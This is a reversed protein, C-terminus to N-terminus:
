LPNEEELDRVLEKWRRASERAGEAYKEPILHYPRRSPGADIYDAAHIRIKDLPITYNSFEASEGARRVADGEPHFPVTSDWIRDTLEKAIEEEGQFFADRLLTVPLPDSSAGTGSWCAVADEPFWRYAKYWEYEIPMLRMRDKVMKYTDYYKVDFSGYKAGVIQPIDALDDWLQYSFEGKFAAINYYLIIGMEPVAQAIDQYFQLTAEESLRCWMPRGLLLGDAGVDRAFKAREITTRTNLTTPGVVVPVDGDVAGVVTEVFQRWESDTLTAAEGFTGTIMLADVDDEVLARAGRRSEEYDVTDEVDVQDADDTAPTPMIAFVGRVDGYTLRLDTM